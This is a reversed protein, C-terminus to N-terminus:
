KMSIPKSKALLLLVLIKLLFVAQNLLHRGLIREVWVSQTFEVSEIITDLNWLTENRSKAPFFIFIDQLLTLQLPLPFRWTQSPLTCFYCSKLPKASRDLLANNLKNKLTSEQVKSYSLCSPPM